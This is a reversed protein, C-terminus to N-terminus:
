AATDHERVAQWVDEEHPFFACPHPHRRLYLSPGAAVPPARRHAANETGLRFPRFPHRHIGHAPNHWLDRFYVVAKYTRTKVTMALVWLCAINQLSKVSNQRSIVWSLHYFFKDFEMMM